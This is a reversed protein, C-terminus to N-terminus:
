KKLADLFKNGSLYGKIHKPYKKRQRGTISFYNLPSYFTYLISLKFTTNKGSEAQAHLIKNIFKDQILM